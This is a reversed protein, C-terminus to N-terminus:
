PFRREDWAAVDPYWGTPVDTIEPDLGRDRMAQIIMGFMGSVAAWIRDREASYVWTFLWNAEAFMVREGLEIQATEQESKWGGFYIELEPFSAAM